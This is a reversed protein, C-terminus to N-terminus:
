LGEAHPIITGNTSLNWSCGQRGYLVMRAETRTLGARALLGVGEERSMSGRERVQAVLAQEARGLRLAMARIVAPDAPNLGVYDFRANAGSLLTRAIGLLGPDPEHPTEAAPEPTATPPAGEMVGDDGQVAEGGASRSESEVGPEAAGQVPVGVPRPSHTEAVRSEASVAPSPPRGESLGGEAGRWPTEATEAAEGGVPYRASAASIPPTGSDQTQLPSASDVNGGVAHVPGASTPPSWVGSDMRSEQVGRIGAADTIEGKPATAASIRLLVKPRGPQDALVEIRWHAGDGERILTRAAKRSLGWDRLFPEADKDTRMPTSAEARRGVEAKLAAIAEVRALVAKQQAEARRLAGETEMADTVDVVAWPEVDHRMELVFPEPEEGVRFKSPIYALRYRDRRKRRSARQAWASVGAPPLEEWWPKTGSPVLGTVDRIEYVIDARDELVGSGRSHAASKVTNGLTLVAPGHQHRAIDLLPALAKAPRASDQEGVGETAADLSDVVVVDFDLIPFRAWAAHDTLPPAENRDIIEFLSLDLAGCATLRRAIESKPNDRDILLVRLGRNACTVLLAHMLNTKGLGRPAFWETVVGRALFRRLEDLFEGGDTNATAVYARVSRIKDWPSQRGPARTGGEEEEDDETAWDRPEFGPRDKAKFTDAVIRDLEADDHSPRCRAANEMALVVRITEPGLGRQKLSRALRFLSPYRNTETIISAVIPTPSTPRERPAEVVSVVTLIDDFRYRRSPECLELVVPQPEGYEPKMNQTGPMRLVRAVEAASDDGGVLAALGHLARGIADAQALVEIPEVLLWYVHLGGGSRVILSPPFLCRALLRRAEAEPVKKFDIDVFLATLVLCNGFTGSSADRRTAVGFYLNHRRYVSVFTEVTALATPGLFARGVIKGGVAIIARLEVLGSVGEYLTTFLTQRQEAPTM